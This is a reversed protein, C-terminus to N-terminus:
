NLKKNDMGSLRDGVQGMTNFLNYKVQALKVKLMKTEKKKNNRIFNKKM